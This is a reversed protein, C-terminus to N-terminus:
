LRPLLAIEVATCFEGLNQLCDLICLAALENYCENSREQQCNAAPLIMDM